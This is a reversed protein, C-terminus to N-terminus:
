LALLPVRDIRLCGPCLFPLLRPSPFHKFAPHLQHTPRVLGLFRHLIISNFLLLVLVALICYREHGDNAHEGKHAVGEGQRDPLCHQLCSPHLHASAPLTSDPDM